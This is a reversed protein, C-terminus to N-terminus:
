LDDSEIDMHNETFCIAQECISERSYRVPESFLVSDEWSYSIQQIKELEVGSTKALLDAKKRSDSVARELLNNKALEIDGITYQISFDLCVPCIALLSLIRSLRMGDAPFEIRMSHHCKFGAFRKRLLDREKYSDLEVDVIYKETKIDKHEFGEKKLVERLMDYSKTSAEMTEEYTDRITELLLNVCITDPPISLKAKGTVTITESM